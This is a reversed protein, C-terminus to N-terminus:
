ELLLKVNDIQLWYYMKPVGLSKQGVYKFAVIYDFTEKIGVLYMDDFDGVFVYRNLTNKTKDFRFINIYKIPYGSETKESFIVGINRGNEKDIHTGLAIKLWSEPIIVKLLEEGDISYVYLYKGSAFILTQKDQIYSFKCTDNDDKKLQFTKQTQSNTITFSSGEQRICECKIAYEKFIDRYDWHYWDENIDGM